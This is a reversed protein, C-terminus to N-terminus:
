LGKNSKILSYSSKTSKVLASQIENSLKQLDSLETQGYKVERGSINVSVVRKGEALSLIARKVKKLDRETYM